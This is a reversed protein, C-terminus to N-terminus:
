PSQRGKQRHAVVKGLTWGGVLAGLFMSAFALGFYTPDLFIWFPLFGLWAVVVGGAGGALTPLLLRPAGATGAAILGVFAGIVFFPVSLLPLALASWFAMQVMTNGGEM